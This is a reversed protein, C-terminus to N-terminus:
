RLQHRENTDYTQHKANTLDQLIVFCNFIRMTQM